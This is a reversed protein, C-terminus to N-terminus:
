IKGVLVTFLGYGQPSCYWNIIRLLLDDDNKVIICYNRIQFADSCTMLKKFDELGQVEFEGMKGDELLYWVWGRCHTFGSRSQLKLRGKSWSGAVANPSHSCFSSKNVPTEGRESDGCGEKTLGCPHPPIPFRQAAKNWPRAADWKGVVPLCSCRASSFAPSRGSAGVVAWQQRSLWPM